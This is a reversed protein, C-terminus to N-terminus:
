RKERLNRFGSDRPRARGEWFTFNLTENHRRKPEIRKKWAIGHALVALPTKKTRPNGLPNPIKQGPCSNKSFVAGLGPSTDGRGVSRRGGASRLALLAGLGHRAADSPHRDPQVLTGRHATKKFFGGKTRVLTYFLFFLSPAGPSM